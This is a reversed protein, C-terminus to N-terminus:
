DNGIYKKIFNSKFEGLIIGSTKELTTANNWTTSIVRRFMQPGRFRPDLTQVM